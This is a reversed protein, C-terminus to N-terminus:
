QPSYNSIKGVARGDPLKDLSQFFLKQTPYAFEIQDHELAEFLALNIAQQIDMYKNYDSSLIYYVIEFNLNYDGFTAFHARDFQVDPQHGIIDAAIQPIKKLKQVTTEYTVGITFVVRRKEMRKYNQVRSNTLDTNSVILQEGGLARLRTTKIGIYEVTGLKDGIVIFDGIEFPKDFFIVLYSFLDGLVAQAALAIAIGGIGLGAVITTIDYGFNDILFIGGLLWLVIKFILLIGKAQRVQADSSSERRMFREFSYGVFDSILRVILFVSVVMIAVHLIESLKASMDLYRLGIYVGLIYLFPVLSREIIVVAFDDLTTKSSEAVARLKVLAISKIIRAAVICGTIISLSILWDSLTNGLLQYELFENM